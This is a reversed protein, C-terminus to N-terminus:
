KNKKYNHSDTIVVMRFGAGAEGSLDSAREGHDKRERCKLGAEEGRGQALRWRPYAELSLQLLAAAM